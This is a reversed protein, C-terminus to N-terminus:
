FWSAVTRPTTRAFGRLADMRASGIDDEFQLELDKGRAPLSFPQDPIMMIRSVAGRAIQAMYREFSDPLTDLARTPCLASFTVIAVGAAQAPHMEFGEIRGQFYVSSAGHNGVARGTVPDLVSASIGGLKASLLKVVRQGAAPAYSYNVQGLVTLVPTQYDQWVLSRTCFDIAAEILHFKATINPCQKVHPLVHPLFADLDM